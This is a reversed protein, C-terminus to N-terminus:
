RGDAHIIIKITKILIIFDLFFSYNRMYYLDYSLKYLSDEVSSGYPYNVQAWGSLGPKIKSRIAFNPILDNLIEYFEPREPRPGILSMDGSIVSLLQPLEDLRTKRIFKGVLTIRPDNPSSWEAGNNEANIKMSRIKYIKFVSYDKGIRKQAYFLPGNDELKILICILLLFPFSVIILFISIFIDGFRKLREEIFNNKTNQLNVIDITNVIESPIRNMYIQCWQLLNLTPINVKVLKNVEIKTNKNSSNLIIGDYNELLEKKNDGFNYFYLDINKNLEKQLISILKKFEKIDGIYVWKENNLVFRNNSNSLLFHAIGSFVPFTILLFLLNYNFFIMRCIFIFSLYSLLFKLILSFLKESLKRIKKFDYSYYRNLFYSITVWILLIFNSDAFKLQIENNIFTKQIEVIFLILFFDISISFIMVKRSKLWAFRELM